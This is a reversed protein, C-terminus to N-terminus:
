WVLPNGYRCIQCNCRESSPKPFTDPIRYKSDLKIAIQTSKALIPHGCRTIDHSELVLTSIKADLDLVRDVKYKDDRLTSSPDLKLCM